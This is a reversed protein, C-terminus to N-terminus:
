EQGVKTQINKFYEIKNEEVVDHGHLQLSYDSSDKKLLEREINISSNLYITGGNCSLNRM